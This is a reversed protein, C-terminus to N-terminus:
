YVGGRVTVHEKGWWVQINIPKTDKIKGREIETSPDMLKRNGKWGTSKKRPGYVRGRYQLPRTTPYMILEPTNQAHSNGYRM